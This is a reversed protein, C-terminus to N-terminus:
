CITAMWDNESKIAFPERLAKSLTRRTVLEMKGFTVWWVVVVSMITRDLLLLVCVCLIQIFIAVDNHMGFYKHLYWGAAAELIGYNYINRLAIQWLIKSFPNLYILKMTALQIFASHSVSLILHHFRHHQRCCCCHRYSIFVSLCTHSSSFSIRILFPLFFFPEALPLSNLHRRM